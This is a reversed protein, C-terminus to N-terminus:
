LDTSHIPNQQMKGFVSGQFIYSLFRDHAEKLCELYNQFVEDEAELVQVKRLALTTDLGFQIDYLVFVERNISEIDLDRILNTLDDEGIALSNTSMMSDNMNPNSKQRQQQKTARIKKQIEHYVRYRIVSYVKHIIQQYTDLNLKNDDLSIIIEPDSGNMAKSIATNIQLDLVQIDRDLMVYKKLKTLFESESNCNYKPGWENIEGLRM